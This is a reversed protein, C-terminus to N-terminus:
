IFENLFINYVGKLIYYYLMICIADQVTLLEKLLSLFIAKWYKFIHKKKYFFSLTQYM